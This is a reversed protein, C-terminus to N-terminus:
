RPAGTVAIKAHARIQAQAAEPMMTAVSHFGIARKVAVGELNGLRQKTESVIADDGTIM